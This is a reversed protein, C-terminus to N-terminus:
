PLIPRPAPTSTAPVICTAVPPAALLDTKGPPASSAGSILPTETSARQDPTAAPSSSNRPPIPCYTGPVGGENQLLLDDTSGEADRSSPVPTFGHGSWLGGHSWAHSVRSFSPAFALAGAASLGVAIATVVLARRLM